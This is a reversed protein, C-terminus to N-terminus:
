RQFLKNLDVPGSLCIASPTPQAAVGQIAPAKILLVLM